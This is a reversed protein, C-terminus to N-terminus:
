YSKVRKKITNAKDIQRQLKTASNELSNIEDRLQKRMDLKERKSKLKKGKRVESISPLSIDSNLKDIERNLSKLKSKSKKINSQILDLKVKIDEVMGDYRDRVDKIIGTLRKDEPLRKGSKKNGEPINAITIAFSESAPVFARLRTTIVKFYNWKGKHQKESVHQSVRKFVDQREAKGIYYLKFGRGQRKYLAYIGHMVRAKTDLAQRLAKTKLIDAPLMKTSGKFLGKEM